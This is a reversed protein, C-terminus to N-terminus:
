RQSGQSMASLYDFALHGCRVRDVIYGDEAGGGVADVGDVAGGSFLQASSEGCFVYAKDVAAGFDSEHLGYGVGCKGWPPRTTPTM